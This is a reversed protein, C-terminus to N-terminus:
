VKQTNVSTLSAHVVLVRCVGRPPLRLARIKIYIRIWWITTKHIQTRCIIIIFSYNTCFIPHVLCNIQTIDSLLTWYLCALMDYAFRQWWKLVSLGLDSPRWKQLHCKWLCKKIFVKPTWIFNEKFNVCELDCGYRGHGVSNVYKSKNRHHQSTNLDTM